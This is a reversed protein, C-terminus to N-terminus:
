RTFAPWTSRRLQRDAPVASTKRGRNDELDADSVSELAKKTAARQAAWLKLYEDKTTYHSDDNPPNKIDHHEAFGAPLPPSSGPTVM